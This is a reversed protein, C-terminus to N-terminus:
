VGLRENVEKQSLRRRKKKKKVFHMGETGPMELHRVSAGVSCGSVVDLLENDQGPRLKFETVDRNRGFTKIPYEARIHDALLVHDGDYFQLSVPDVEPTTIGVHVKSKWWNADINIYDHGRTADNARNWHPGWEKHRERWSKSEAGHNLDNTSATIGIGFSPLWLGKGHDVCFRFVTDVMDGDKADIMGIGLHMRQGNRRRFETNEIAKTFAKLGEYWCEADSGWFDGLKRKITRRDWYDTKQDPFVDYDVFYRRFGPCTAMVGAVMFHQQMDIYCSLEVADDPVEYRKLVSTKALIEERTAYVVDDVEFDDEPENNGEAMAARPDVIWWSMFSQLSTLYPEDIREEWYVEAGHDMGPRHWGLGYRCERNERYFENAPELPLEETMLRRLLASYQTWLDMNTPWKELWKVRHGRYQPFEHSLMRDAADDKKIVTATVAIKVKRGPGGCGFVDAGMIECREKVQKPSNASERTQIDNALVVDPRIVEGTPLAIQAGRVSGTIGGGSIVGGATGLELALHNTPLIIMAAKFEAHMPIGQCTMGPASKATSMRFFVGVTEPFDLAMLRNSRYEIHFARMQKKFADDDAEVLLPWRCHGHRVAWDVAVRCVTTKGSGRPQATIAAAFDHGLFMEELMAILELHSKSFGLYWKPGHYREMDYKLDFKCREREKPNAPEPIEGFERGIAM